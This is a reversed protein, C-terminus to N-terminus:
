EIAPTLFTVARSYYSQFANTFIYPACMRLGDARHFTLGSAGEHLVLKTSLVPIRSGKILDINKSRLMSEGFHSRFISNSFEFSLSGNRNLAGLLNPFVDTKAYIVKPADPIFDSNLLDRERLTGGFDELFLAM